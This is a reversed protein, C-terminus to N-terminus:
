GFFHDCIIGTAVAVNLSEAGGKRPITIRKTVYSSLEDGIGHSESGMLLIGSTVPEIGSLAEGEMDAAIIQDKYNKLTTALDVYYINVRTLSGKSASVVKPNYIDVSNLNLLLKNIGYWDAVRIITGLNGPDNFNDLALILEKKDFSLTGPEKSKVVALATNNTKFTGLSSLTKANCTYVLDPLLKNSIKTYFEETGVVEEVIFDSALFELVSKSGEVIFKGEETRSKKVQLSKIYKAKSKSLPTM